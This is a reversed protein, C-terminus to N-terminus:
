GLGRSAPSTFYDHLVDMLAEQDNSSLRLLSNVARAAESAAATAM